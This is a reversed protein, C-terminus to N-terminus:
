PTKKTIISELNIDVVITDKVKILGFLKKPTTLNFDQLSLAINGKFIMKNNQHNITIPITYNKTIECITFSLDANVNSKSSVVVKKLVMKIKPFDNTKLLKHFDRNIGSGGCDFESNKLLLQTNEFVLMNDHKKFNVKLSDTLQYTNYDCDFQNVNSKGKIILTSKPTFSLTVIEKRAFYFYFNSLIFLNGIIILVSRM